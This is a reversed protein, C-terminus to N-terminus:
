ERLQFDIGGRDDRLIAVVFPNTAGPNLEFLNTEDLFTRSLDTTGKFSFWSITYQETKEIMVGDDGMVDYSQPNFGSTVSITLEDQDELDGTTSDNLLINQIQPNQNKPTRESVLIRKYVSVEDNGAEFTVTVLYNLGNFKNRETQGALIGPPINVTFAPLAGTFRTGLTATDVDAYVITQTGSSSPDCSPENGLTIGPDICGLITLSVNRGGADVDSVFPTIQVAVPTLSTGDIEPQDAQLTLVRFEGLNFFTNPDQDCGMFFVFSLCTLFKKM